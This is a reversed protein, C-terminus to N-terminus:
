IYTLKVIYKGRWIQIEKKAFHEDSTEDIWEVDYNTDADKWEFYKKPKYPYRMFAPAAPGDWPPIYPYQHDWMELTEELEKMLSDVEGADTMDRCREFEKRINYAAWDWKDLEFKYNFKWWKLTRRYLNKVANYHTKSGLRTVKPMPNHLYPM